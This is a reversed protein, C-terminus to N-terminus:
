AEVIDAVVVAINDNGGGDLALAVLRDALDAVPVGEALLAPLKEADGYHIGDTAFVLRDGVVLDLVLRQPEIDKAAGLVQYLTHRKPHTAAEEETLEGEAVMRATITQDVTLREVEGNRVAWAMSDGVHALVVQGGVIGAGTLTCCMTSLLSSASATGHVVKSARQAAEAPDVGALVLERFAAVGTASAVEGAPRGGVGDAVAVVAAEAAFADENNTRLKGVDARGVAEFRMGVM